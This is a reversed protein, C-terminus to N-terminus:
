RGEIGINVEFSYLAEGGHGDTVSVTVPAKGKFDPPINWKILGKEDITMGDPAEKLSYTLPDGDPDSTHLRLQFIGNDVKWESSSKIEPPMNLIERYLTVTNGYNTGDYPTIKVTIRDGRKVPM